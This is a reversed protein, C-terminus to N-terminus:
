VCIRNQIRYEPIFSNVGCIWKGTGSLIAIQKPERELTKTILVGHPHHDRKKQGGM